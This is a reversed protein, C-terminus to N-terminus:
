DKYIRNILGKLEMASTSSATSVDLTKTLAIYPVVSNGEFPSGKELPDHRPALIGNPQLRFKTLWVLERPVAVDPLEGKIPRNSGLLRDHIKELSNMRQAIVKGRGALRQYKIDQIQPVTELLSETVKKGM